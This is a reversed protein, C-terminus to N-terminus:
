GVVSDLSMAVSVRTLRPPLSQKRVEIRGESAVARFTIERQGQLQAAAKPQSPSRLSHAATM